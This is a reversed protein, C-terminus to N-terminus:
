RKRTRRRVMEFALLGSGLLLLASPAPVEVADSRVIFQIQDPGPNVTFLTQFTGNETIAPIIATVGQPCQSAAPDSCFFVPNVLDGVAVVTSFLRDSFAGSGPELLDQSVSGANTAAASLPVNFHLFEATSDPLLTAPTGNITASATETFDDIIVTILAARSQGVTGLLLGLVALSRIVWPMARPIYLLGKVRRM